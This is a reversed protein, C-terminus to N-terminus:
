GDRPDSDLREALRVFSEFADAAGHTDRYPYLGIAFLALTPGHTINFGRRRLEVQLGRILASDRASLSAPMRLRPLCIQVERMVVTAQPASGVSGEYSTGVAGFAASSM